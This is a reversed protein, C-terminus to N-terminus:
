FGALAMRVLARRIWVGSRVQQLVVNRPDGLVESDLEVGHNIPGPHMIIADSRLQKLVQTNLAYHKRFDALSIAEKQSDSHRENQLRLAMVATAWQLGTKLDSFIQVPERLTPLLNEPGCFAIEYGLLKSLQIHSSAVRSHVVDGVILLRESKLNKRFRRITYADLLAQTPHGKTGWGANLIPAAVLKDMAQLDLSDDCRIILLDPDMAAVNLVTDELSEGKKLSSSANADLLMPHVGEQVCASEFSLRTRTSAEFFILAAIKKSLGHAQQQKTSESSSNAFSDAISFLQELHRAEFQQNELFSKFQPM